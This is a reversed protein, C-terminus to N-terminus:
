CPPTNIAFQPNRIASQPNILIAFVTVAVFTRNRLRLGWFFQTAIGESEM